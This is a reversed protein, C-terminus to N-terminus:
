VHARGIETIRFDFDTESVTEALTGADCLRATRRCAFFAPLHTYTDELTTAGYLPM